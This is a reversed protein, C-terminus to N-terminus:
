FLGIKVDIGASYNRLASKSINEINIDSTYRYTGYLAIRMWRTFNFELEVGPEVVYFFDADNYYDAYYYYDNFRTAAGVGFVVPFTLHVPKLPFLMPEVFLGGYGGALSYDTSTSSSNYYYADLNDINNVFGTGAVGFAFWHDMIWGGRSTFVIGNKDDIPSYGTALSGYFGDRKERKFVTNIEQNNYNGIHITKQAFAAPLFLIAIIFTSVLKKM